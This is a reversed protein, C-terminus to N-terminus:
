ARSNRKSRIECRMRNNEPTLEDKERRTLDITRKKEYGRGIIRWNWLQESGIGIRNVRM